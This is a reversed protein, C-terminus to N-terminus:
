SERDRYFYHYPDATCEYYVKKKGGHFEVLETKLPNGCKPCVGICLQITEESSQPLIGMIRGVMNRVPTIHLPTPPKSAESSKFNNFKM